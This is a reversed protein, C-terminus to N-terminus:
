ALSWGTPITYQPATTHSIMEITYASAISHGYHFAPRFGNAGGTIPYGADSAPNKNGWAGNMGLWVQSAATDYAIMIIDNNGSSGLGTAYPGGSGYFSGDHYLYVSTSSGYGGTTSGTVVGMMPYSTDAIIKYEMYGKGMKGIQSSTAAISNASANVTLKNVNDGYATIVSSSTDFTFNTQFSLSVTIAHSTIHVGDSAKLRLAFNGAHAETTSPTLTFTGGSNTIGTVQNPSSPNTDHSYTIPFGEPDEAAMTITSTTGDGNLKHTTAPTTTLRPTEDGGSNIRDWEAGDWIYVAKTDTAFGFDGVTNGSSPFAALNAYATVAVGASINLLTKVEADTIGSALSPTGSSDIIAPSISSSSQPSWSTSVSNYVFTRSGVTHTQGNSPSDPFNIAM